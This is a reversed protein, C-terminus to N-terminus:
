IYLYIYVYSLTNSKQHLFIIIAFDIHENGNEYDFEYNRNKYKRLFDTFLRKCFHLNKFVINFMCVFVRFNIFVYYYM